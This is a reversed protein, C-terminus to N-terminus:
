PALRTAGPSRSARSRARERVRLHPRRGRVPQFQGDAGTYVFLTIPDAPKEGTYQLDPGTPLISGARVHVPMADFPAPADLAQGGATAAGTWFDYWPTTGPFYVSRSRAKYSTVPSVLFAPGFMFQDVVDRAKPDDRYDMVLARLLTGHDHAAQGGLSYLYPLLRYRLKDYKVQTAYATSTEGGFNWMERLPFQGHSRLIPLFTSYEFWRTYLERWEDENDPTMPVKTFRGPCRSAAPTWRGTPFARFRSASVRPIQKKFATWTSSIDGSWTAAGFRQQGAFASRTLTFVRQNPKAARQGDYVAESTLLSYANLVRAGTGAGTPHAYKRQGDLYPMPQVLDPETADMWWSDVGKSLLDREIQAWFLKRGESAYPDVFAYPHGLWDIMGEKM